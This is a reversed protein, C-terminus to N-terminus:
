HSSELSAKMKACCMCSSRIAQRRPGESIDCVAYLKTATVRFEGVLDKGSEINEKSELSDSLGLNRSLSEWVTSSHRTIGVEGDQRMGQSM